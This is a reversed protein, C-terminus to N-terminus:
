SRQQSRSAQSRGEKKMAEKLSRGVSQWATATPDPRPTRLRRFNEVSPDIALSTGRRAGSAIARTTMTM